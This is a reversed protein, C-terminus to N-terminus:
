STPMPSRPRVAFAPFHEGFPHRQVTEGCVEILEDRSMVLVRNELGPPVVPESDGAPVIAVPLRARLACVVGFERATLEPNPTRVDVVLDVPNAGDLPCIGAPALAQCVGARRHCGSVQCGVARLREALEDADGFLAETLLVHM